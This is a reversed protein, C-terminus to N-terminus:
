STLVQPDLDDEAAPQDPQDPDEARRVPPQGRARASLLGQQEPRGAGCDAPTGLLRVTLLINSCTLVLLWVLGYNRFRCGM